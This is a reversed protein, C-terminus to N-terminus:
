NLPDRRIAHESEDLSQCAPKLAPRKIFKVGVVLWQVWRDSVEGTGVADHDDVGIETLQRGLGANEATPLPPLLDRSRLRLSAVSRKAKNDSDRFSPSLVPVVNYLPDTSRFPESALRCPLKRWLLVTRRHHTRDAHEEISLHAELIWLACGIKDGVELSQAYRSLLQEGRDTLDRGDVVNEGAASGRSDAHNWCWQMNEYSRWRPAQSVADDALVQHAPSNVVHTAEEGLVEDESAASIGVPGVHAGAGLAQKLTPNRVGLDGPNSDHLRSRLDRNPSIQVAWGRPQETPSHEDQATPCEAPRDGVETDARSCRLHADDILVVDSRPNENALRVRIVINPKGFRCGQSGAQVPDTGVIWNPRHDALDLIGHESIPHSWWVHIQDDVSGGIGGDRRQQLSKARWGPPGPRSDQGDHDTVM